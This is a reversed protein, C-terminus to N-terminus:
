NEVQQEYEIYNKLNINGKSKTKPNHGDYM